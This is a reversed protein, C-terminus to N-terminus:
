ASGLYGHVKLGKESVEISEFIDFGCNDALRDRYAILNSHMKEYDENKIKGSFDVSYLSSLLIFTFKTYPKGENKYQFNPPCKKSSLLIKMKQSNNLVGNIFYKFDAVNDVKVLM